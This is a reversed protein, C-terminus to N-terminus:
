WFTDIFKLYKPVIADASMKHIDAKMMFYGAPPRPIDQKICIKKLGNGTIGFDAGVIIMPRGWIRAYLESGRITTVAM